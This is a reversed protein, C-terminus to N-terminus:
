EDADALRAELGPSIYTGGALVTQIAGPLEEPNGKLIYGRAGASLAQRIYNVEGHASVMLCLLEPYREQLQEVLQLGSMGPLMGDILILDAEVEALRELAEEGTAVLECRELGLKKQIFASMTAAMIAHDEILIKPSM